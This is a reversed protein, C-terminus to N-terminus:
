SYKAIRRSLNTIMATKAANITVACLGFSVESSDRRMTRPFEPSCDSVKVGCYIAGPRGFPTCSEQATNGLDSWAPSALPPRNIVECVTPDVPVLRETKPKGIPVHIAWQGRGITRLCHLSLNVCQSIAGTCWYLCLGAGRTNPGFPGIGM